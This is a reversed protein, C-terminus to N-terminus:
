SASSLVHRLHRLLDIYSVMGRLRGRADTVPLASFRGSLLLELAQSIPADPTVTTPTSMVQEVRLHHLSEPVHNPALALKPHGLLRRVDRESVIGIVRQESDVVCAHRVGREVMRAATALLTAQPRVAIPEAYMIASVPLSGPRGAELQSPAPRALAGLVDGTSLIGVVTDGDCVPLFELGERVMSAATAALDADPSAREACARMFDHVTRRLGDAGGHQAIARLLDHESLVGVCREDEDVVALARVEGWRMLQRAHALSDQSHVVSIHRQMAERVNM